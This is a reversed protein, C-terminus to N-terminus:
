NMKMKFKETPQLVMRNSCTWKKMAHFFGHLAGTKRNEEKILLHQYQILLMDLEQSCKITRESTYGEKNATNIMEGRKCNITELLKTKLRGQNM